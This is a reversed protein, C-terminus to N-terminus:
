LNDAYEIEVIITDDATTGATKVILVIDMGREYSTLDRLTKTYDFGSVGSALVEANSLGVVLTQGDALLTSNTIAAFEGAKAIVIDCDNAAALGVANTIRISKIITNPDLDHLLTCTDGANAESIDYFWRVLAKKFVTGKINIQKSPASVYETTNYNVATM